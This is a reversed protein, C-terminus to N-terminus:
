ISLDELGEIFMAMTLLSNIGLNKQLCNYFFEPAELRMTVLLALERGTLKEFNKKPLNHKEIWRNVDDPRWKRVVAVPAPHASYVPKKTAVAVPLGDVRDMTEERQSQISVVKPEVDENGYCVSIERILEKIKAEFPYKGSFEYFLKAGILFGLWGDPQYGREMKLPVIKKRLQFAYEAEARCNPSDKYKQSMCILIVNAHEVAEAMAQLTSGGMNDIDMWVSFGHEKLFDRIQVLEKQHSWNYSIMIHGKGDKVPTGSSESSKKAATKPRNKQEFSSVIHKYKNTKQLEERLIWLTGDVAKRVEKDSSKGQFEVLLDIIKLETDDLIKSHNEKEFALVWIAGVSERQEQVNGGKALGALHPLCGMQVLLKKNADNRALCRVTMACEQASWGLHRHHPDKVALGLTKLLFAVVDPKDQLIASEKEDIINALTSLASLRYIEKKADLFSNFVPVIELSRLHPINQDVMSTNHYISLCWKMINENDPKTEGQMHAPLITSLIEKITELFNPEGAIDYTVEPTCDSFNLLTLLSKSMGELQHADTKGEENRYGRKWGDMIVKCMVSTSKSESLRQGAECRYKQIADYPLPGIEKISFYSALFIRLCKLLDGNWSGDETRLGPIQKVSDIAENLAKFINEKRIKIEKETLVKEGDVSEEKKDPQSKKENEMSAPVVIKQPASNSRTAKPYSEVSSSSGM